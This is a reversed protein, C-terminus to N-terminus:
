KSKEPQMFVTHGWGPEQGYGKGRSIVTIMPFDQKPAYNCEGDTFMVQVDAIQKQEMLWKVPAAM